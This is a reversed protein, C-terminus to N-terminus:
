FLSLSSSLSLHLFSSPSSSLCILNTDFSCQSRAHTLTQAHRVRGAFMIVVPVLCCCFSVFLCSVLCSALSFQSSHVSFLSSLVSFLFSHCSALRIHLLRLITHLNHKVNNWCVKQRALWSLLQCKAWPSICATSLTSLMSPSAGRQVGKRM